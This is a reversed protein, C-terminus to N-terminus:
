NLEYKGADFHGRSQTLTSPRLNLMRIGLKGSEDFPTTFANVHSLVNPDSAFRRRVKNAMIREQKLFEKQICQLTGPRPPERTKAMPGTPAEVTKPILPGATCTAGTLTTPRVGCGEGSILGDVVVCLSRALRRAGSSHTM